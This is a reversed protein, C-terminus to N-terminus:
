IDIKIFQYRLIDKDKFVSSWRIYKYKKYIHLLLATKLTHKRIINGSKWTYGQEDLKRSIIDKNEDTILIWDGDKFTLQSELIEVDHIM